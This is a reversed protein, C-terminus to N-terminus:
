YHPPLASSESVQVWPLACKNLRLATGLKSSDETWPLHRLPSWPSAWSQSYCLTSSLSPLSENSAFLEDFPIHTSVYGLLHPGPSYEELPISCRSTNKRPWAMSAKIGNGWCEPCIMIGMEGSPSSLWLSILYNGPYIGQLVTPADNAHLVTHVFGGPIICYWVVM